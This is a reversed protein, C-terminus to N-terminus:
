LKEGKLIKDELDFMTKKEKANHVHDYGLLHLLGHVYLYCLEYQFSHKFEKAQSKIKDISIVIIGLYEDKPSKIKVEDKQTELFAFSLVDTPKDIHRYQKNIKKITSNNVFNLEIIYHNNVKLLKFTKNTLKNLIKEYHNYRSHYDNNFCLKM